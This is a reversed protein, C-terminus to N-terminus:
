KAPAKPAFKLEVPKEKGGKWPLDQVDYFAIYLMFGILLVAFATQIAGVIRTSLPKRRVAELVALVIHGGDLVPIPLLNMLALNVNLVVSFWIALRWGHEASFLRYYVNMIMVAGGLHQPKIDSKRAFLAGFTEFVTAVSSSVQEIAGPHVLMTKGNADWTIGLRPKEDPPSVPKQPKVTVVSPKDKRAITLTLSENPHSDIFDALAAFHYLRNGNVAVVEDGRQLGAAAAPSNDAVQAVIASEAPAIKIQRLSKRQWVKTPEKVPEPFFDLTQGDREVKLQVTKGESSVIRWKVSSGMGDFKTVPKGDVELVRDGPHLGAKEAPGDKEVYGITTTTEGESVPRGVLMVVYAFLLALLFSFLPGAFAVIIKDRACVPPLPQDSSESKGEIAEMTAMQPLSVYGGFPISGLAYEVNNIKTKWVPKGFWIAFRDIKMGRWRAALFHGLEHVFIILNFLLLVELTIFIIKLVQM